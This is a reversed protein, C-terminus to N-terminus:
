VISFTSDFSSIANFNRLLGVAKGVNSSYSVVTYVAGVLLSVEGLFCRTSIIQSDLSLNRFSKQDHGQLTFANALSMSLPNLYFTQSTFLSLSSLLQDGYASDDTLICTPLSSNWVPTNRLFNIVEQVSLEEAEGTVLKDGRRIHIANFKSALGPIQVAHRGLYPALCCQLSKAVDDYFSPYRTAMSNEAFATWYNHFLEFPNFGCVLIDISFSRSFRYLNRELIGSPIPSLLFSPLIVPSLHELNVLDSWYQYRSFGCVPFLRKQFVLRFVERLYMYVILESFIGRSSMPWYFQQNKPM